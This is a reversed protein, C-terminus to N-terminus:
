KKANFGRARMLASYDQGDPLVVYRLPRHYKDLNLDRKNGRHLKVQKGELIKRAEITTIQGAYLAEEPSIGWDYAQKYLRPIRSKEFTDLDLVRISISDACDLCTVCIFTDGDVVRTVLVNITDSNTIAHSNIYAIRAEEKAQAPNIRESGASVSDDQAFAPICSVLVLLALIILWAAVSDLRPTLTFRQNKM